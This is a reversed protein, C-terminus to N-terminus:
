KHYKGGSSIQFGRYLQELLIVRSMQHTFTMKSFSLQMNAMAKVRASLGWSGGIIFVLGAAAGDAMVAELRESFAESSLQEGEICLAIVYPNPPLKSILREGEADITRQIEAPSPSQPAREEQVETIGLKCYAGLRKQYEAAADRLYKEKLSGVCLINISRM